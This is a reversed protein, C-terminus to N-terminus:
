PSMSAGPCVDELGRALVVNFAGIVMEDENDSRDCPALNLIFRGQLRSGKTVDPEGVFEVTGPIGGCTGWIGDPSLHTPRLYLMRIGHDDPEASLTNLGPLIAGTQIAKADLVIQLRHAKPARCTGDSLEILISPEVCSTQWTAVVRTVSFDMPTSVGTVLGNATSDGTVFAGPDGAVCEERLAGITSAGGDISGDLEGAGGGGDTRLGGDHPSSVTGGNFSNGAPAVPPLKRDKKCGSAPILAASLLCAFVAPHRMRLVSGAYGFHSHTAVNAAAAPGDAM